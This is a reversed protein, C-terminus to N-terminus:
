QFGEVLSGNEGDEDVQVSRVSYGNRVLACGIREAMHECSMARQGEFSPLESIVIQVDDLLLHYEVDRDGHSVNVRVEVGFKHRHASRLYEVAKPAAPWAHFGVFSTRVFISRVLTM